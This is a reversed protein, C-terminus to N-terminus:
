AEKVDTTGSVLQKAATECYEPDRGRPRLYFESILIKTLAAAPVVLIVGILGFLTTMSMLFFMITVPHLNMQKGMVFPILVNSEVQQIFLICALALGLKDLGLSAAVFLAPISAIVAGVIPILEGFFSIVGFAFAPQVGVLALLVGTSIGTVLGMILTGRAWAGMQHMMRTLTRRTPERAEIPVLELTAAVVPVPDSLTFILLLVFLLLDILGGFAGLTSRLVFQAVGGAQAGAASLLENSQTNIYDQLAPNIQLWGKVQNYIRAGYEPIRQVLQQIQDLFTPLLLGFILGVIIAVTLGLLLLALPRRLRRRELAAIVPNCVMAVVFVVAFLLLQRKLTYIAIAGLVFVIALILWRRLDHYTLGGTTREEKEDSEKEILM